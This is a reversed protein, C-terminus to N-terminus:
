WLFYVFWFAIHQYWKRYKGFKAIKLIVLKIGAVVRSLITHSFDNSILKNGELNEKCMPFETVLTM